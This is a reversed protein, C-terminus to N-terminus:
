FVGRELGKCYRRVAARKGERGKQVPFQHKPNPHQIRQLCLRQGPRVEWGAWEPRGVASGNTEESWGLQLSDIDSSSGGLIDGIDHHSASAGPTRFSDDNEARPWDANEVLNRRCTARGMRHSREIQRAGLGCM